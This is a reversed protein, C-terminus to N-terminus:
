CCFGEQKVSSVSLYSKLGAMQSNTNCEWIRRGGDQLHLSNGAKDQVSSLETGEQASGEPKSSHLFPVKQSISEVYPSDYKGSKQKATLRKATPKELATM